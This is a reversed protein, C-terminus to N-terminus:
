KRPGKQSCEFCIIYGEPISAGCFICTNENGRGLFWEKISM